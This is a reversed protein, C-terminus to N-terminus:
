VSVSLSMSSTSCKLVSCKLVFMKPCVFRGASEDAAIQKHVRHLEAATLAGSGLVVSTLAGASTVAGVSFTVLDDGDSDDDGATGAVGALKRLSTPISVHPPLPLPVSLPMRLHAPSTGTSTDQVPLPMRLHAPRFFCGALYLGAAPARPTQVLISGSATPSKDTHGVAVSGVCPLTPPLLATEILHRRAAGCAVAVAAGIM